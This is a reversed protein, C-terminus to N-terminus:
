NGAIIRLQESTNQNMRLSLTDYDSWWAESNENGEVESAARILLNEGQQVLIFAERQLPVLRDTLAAQEVDTTGVLIERELAALGEEVNAAISEARSRIEDGAQRQPVLGNLAKLKFSVGETLAASAYALHQQSQGPPFMAAQTRLSLAQGDMMLVPGHILAEIGRDVAGRDGADLSDSVEILSVLMAEATDAQESLADIFSNIQRDSLDNGSARLGQIEGSAQRIVALTQDIEPRHARLTDRWVRASADPEIFQSSFLSGLATQIQQGADLLRGMVAGQDALTREQAAARANMPAPISVTGLAVVFVALIVKRM